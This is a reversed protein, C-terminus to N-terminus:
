ILTFLRTSASCRLRGVQRRGHRALLGDNVHYSINTADAFRERCGQVCNENLSSWPFLAGYWQAEPGGWPESWEDGNRCWDHRAGWQDKNFGVTPM